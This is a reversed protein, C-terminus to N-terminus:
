WEVVRERGDAFHQDYTQVNVVGGTAAEAGVLQVVTTLNAVVLSVDM